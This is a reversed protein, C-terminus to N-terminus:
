QKMSMLPSSKLYVRLMKTFIRLILKEQKIEKM